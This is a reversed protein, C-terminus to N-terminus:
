QAYDQEKLLSLLENRRALVGDRKDAAVGPMERELTESNLAKLRLYTERDPVMRRAEQVSPLPREQFTWGHDIAVQYQWDRIEFIARHNVKPASPHPAITGDANTKYLYNAYHRDKNGIIYDLLATKPTVQDASRIKYGFVMGDRAGDVFYQLSGIRGEVEREVTVPVADGGLLRNLRYAAIEYWHNATPGLQKPKFIAQGGDEFSVLYTETMGARLRKVGRVRQTKLRNGLIAELDTAARRAGAARLQWAAEQYQGKNTLAKILVRARLPMSELTTTAAVGERALHATLAETARMASTPLGFRGPAGLHLAGATGVLMIADVGAQDIAEWFTQDAAEHAHRTAELEAGTCVGGGSARCKGLWTAKKAAAKMDFWAQVGTCGTTSFGLTVPTALMCGLGVTKRFHRDRAAGARIAQQSCSRVVALQPFKSEWVPDQSLASLNALEQWSLNSAPEPSCLRSMFNENEKRITVEASELLKSLTADDASAFQHIRGAEEFQRNLPNRGAALHPFAEFYQEILQTTETLAQAPCYPHEPSGKIFYDCGQPSDPKEAKAQDVLRHATAQESMLAGLEIAATKIEDRFLKNNRDLRVSTEGTQPKAQIKSIEEFGQSVKEQCAAPLRIPDGALLDRSAYSVRSLAMLRLLDFYAKTAEGQIITFVEPLFPKLSTGRVADCAVEMTASARPIEGGNKARVCTDVERRFAIEDPDTPNRDRFPIRAIGTDPIFDQLQYGQISSDGYALPLALLSLFALALAAIAPNKHTSKLSKAM